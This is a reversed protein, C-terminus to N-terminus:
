ITNMGTSRSDGFNNRWWWGGNNFGGERGGGETNFSHEEEVSRWTSIMRKAVTRQTLITEQPSDEPYTVQREATSVDFWKEFLFRGRHFWDVTM